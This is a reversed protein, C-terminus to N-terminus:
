RPGGGPVSRGAGIPKPAAGSAGPPAVLREELLRAVAALDDERRTGPRALLARAEDVLGPVGLKDVYALLPEADGRRRFRAVAEAVADRAPDALPRALAQHRRVEPPPHSKGEDGRRAPLITYRVVLAVLVSVYAWDLLIGGEIRGAWLLHYPVLLAAGVGLLVWPLARPSGRRSPPRVAGGGRVPLVGGLADLGVLALAAGGLLPDAVLGLVALPLLFAVWSLVRHPWPMRNTGSALGSTLGWARLFAGGAVPPGVVIWPVYGGQTTVGTELLLTALALVGVMVWFSRGTRPRVLPELM